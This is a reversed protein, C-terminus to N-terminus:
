KIKNIEYIIKEFDTKNITLQNFIDIINEATIKEFDEIRPMIFVGGFDVSAPSTLLQNKGQEFFQAPRHKIRPFIHVTWSDKDAYCLINMMPEAEHPQLTSLMGYIKAFAELLDSKSNSQLSIMRRLYDAAFSIEVSKYKVTQLRNKMEAFEKEVPLFGKSGAQFHLHDPASAGCKPGNYFVTYDTLIASIDLMTGMNQAISQNTHQLQSVTLHKPFVPFPNVLILFDVCVPIGQQEPPLNQPCLFCKRESISKADVKAASSRIREPNFQVVFCMGCIHLRRTLTKELGKYNDAALQWSSTQQRFLHETLFSINDTSDPIYFYKETLDM